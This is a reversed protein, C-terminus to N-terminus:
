AANSVAVRSTNTYQTSSTAAATADVIEATPLLIEDRILDRVEDESRHDHMLEALLIEAHDAAWSAYKSESLEALQPALEDLAAQLEDLDADRNVYRELSDQVRRALEASDVM